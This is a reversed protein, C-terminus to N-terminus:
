VTRKAVVAATKTDDLGHNVTQHLLGSSGVAVARSCVFNGDTALMWIVGLLQQYETLVGGHTGHTCGTCVCDQQAVPHVGDQTCAM